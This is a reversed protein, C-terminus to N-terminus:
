RGFARSKGGGQGRRPDHADAGGGMLEIKNDLSFRKPMVVKGNPATYYTPPPMAAAAATTGYQGCAHAPQIGVAGHPQAVAHGVAHTPQPMLGGFISQQAGSGLTAYMANSAPQPQPPMVVGPVPLPTGHPARQQQQQKQIFESATPVGPATSLGGAGGGTHLRVRAVLPNHLVREQWHALAALKPAIASRQGPGFSAQIGKLETVLSKVEILESDIRNVHDSTCSASSNAHEQAIELVHVLEELREGDASAVAMARVIVDREGDSLHGEHVDAAAVLADLGQDSSNGGAHSWPGGMSPNPALNGLLEATSPQHSGKNYVSQYYEDIMGFVLDMSKNSLLSSLTSSSKKSGRSMWSIHSRASTSTADMDVVRDESMRKALEDM